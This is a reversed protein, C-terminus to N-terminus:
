LYYLFGIGSIVQTHKGYKVAKYFRKADNLNDFSRRYCNNNNLNRFVVKYYYEKEHPPEDAYCLFSNGIYTM